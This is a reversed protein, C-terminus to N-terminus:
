GHHSDSTGPQKNTFSPRGSTPDTAKEIVKDATIDPTKQVETVVTDTAARLKDDMIRKILAELMKVNEQQRRAHVEERHKEYDQQLATHQEAATLYVESADLRKKVEKVAIDLEEKVAAQIKVVAADAETRVLRKVTLYTAAMISLSWLAQTIWVPLVSPWDITM